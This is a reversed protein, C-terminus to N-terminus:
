HGREALEFEIPQSIPQAIPPAPDGGAGAMKPPPGTTQKQVPPRKPTARQRSPRLESRESRSALAGTVDPEARAVGPAARLPPEDLKAVTALPAAVAAARVGAQEIPRAGDPVATRWDRTYFSGGYLLAFAGLCLATVRLRSGSRHYHISM